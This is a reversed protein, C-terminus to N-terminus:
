DASHRKWGARLLRVEHPTTLTRVDYRDAFVTGRRKLLGNLGKALRTALGQMARALARPGDAEVLLQLHDSQVSYHLLRTDGREKMARLSSLVLGALPPKERLSPM